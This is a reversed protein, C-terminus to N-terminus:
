AVTLRGIRAPAARRHRRVPARPALGAFRAAVRYSKRTADRRWSAPSSFSFGSVLAMCRRGGPARGPPSFPHRLAAGAPPLHGARPGAMVAISSTRRAPRHPAAVPPHCEGRRSAPPSFSFGSMLAMCRSFHWAVDAVPRKVGTTLVSPAPRRRRLASPRSSPRGHRRNLLHPPGTPTTSQSAAPMRRAPTRAVFVFIGVDIGHLTLFAMCRRGGSAQGRHHPHGACPAAASQADALLKAAAAEALGLAAEFAGLDPSSALGSLDTEV